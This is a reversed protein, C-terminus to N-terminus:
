LSGGSRERAPAVEGAVVEMVSIDIPGDDERVSDDFRVGANPFSFREAIASDVVVTEPPSFGFAERRTESFHAETDVLASWQVSFTSIKAYLRPIWSAQRVTLSYPQAVEVYTIWHFRDGDRFSFSTEAIRIREFGLHRWEIAGPEHISFTSVVESPLRPEERLPSGIRERMFKMVKYKTFVCADSGHSYFVRPATASMERIFEESQREQLLKLHSKLGEMSSFCTLNPVNSRAAGATDTLLTDASVLAVKQDWRRCIDLVTQLVLYDKFGKEGGGASTFPPNRWIADQVLKSWNMSSYPIPHIECGSSSFFRLLRRQIRWRTLSPSDITPRMAGTLKSLTELGRKIQAQTKLAANVKIAAIEQVVIRPIIVRNVGLTALEALEQKLNCPLVEAENATFLINSDAVLIYRPKPLDPHM